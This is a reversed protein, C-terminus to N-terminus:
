FFVWKCISSEFVVKANISSGFFLTGTKLKFLFFVLFFLVQWFKAAELITFLVPFIKSGFFNHIKYRLFFKNAGGLWKLNFYVGPGYM